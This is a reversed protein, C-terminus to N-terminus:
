LCPGRRENIAHKFAAGWVGQVMGLAGEGGVGAPFCGM